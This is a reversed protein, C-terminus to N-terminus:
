WSVQAVRRRRVVRSADVIGRAVGEGVLGRVELRRSLRLVRRKVAGGKVALLVRGVLRM